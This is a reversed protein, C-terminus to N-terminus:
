TFFEFSMKFYKEQKNKSTQKKKKNKKEFNPNSMEHLNVGTSVIQMFTM